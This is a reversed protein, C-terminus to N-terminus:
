LGTWYSVSLNYNVPVVINLPPATHKKIYTFSPAKRRGVIQILQIYNLSKIPLQPVKHPTQPVKHPTFKNEFIINM